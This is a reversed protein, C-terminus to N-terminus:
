FSGNPLNMKGTKLGPYFMDMIILASTMEM